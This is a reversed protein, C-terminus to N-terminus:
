RGRRCCDGAREEEEEEEEGEEEGVEEEIAFRRVDFNSGYTDSSLDM